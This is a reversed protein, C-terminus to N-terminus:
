ETEATWSWSLNLRVINYFCYEHIKNRPYVKSFQIQKLWYKYTVNGTMFPMQKWPLFNQFFWQVIFFTESTKSTICVTSGTQPINIDFHELSYFCHNRLCVTCRNKDLFLYSKMGEVATMLGLVFLYCTCTCCCCNNVYKTALNHM